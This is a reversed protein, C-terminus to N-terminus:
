APDATFPKLWSRRTDEHKEGTVDAAIKEVAKESLEARGLIKRADALSLLKSGKEEELQIRVNLLEDQVASLREALDFAQARSLCGVKQGATNVCGACLYFRLGSADEALLDVFGDPHAHTNCGRCLTPPFYPAKVWQYDPM